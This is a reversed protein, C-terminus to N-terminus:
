QQCLFSNSFKRSIKEHNKSEKLFSAIRKKKKQEAKSKKQKKQVWGIKKCLLFFRLPSTSSNKKCRENKQLAFFFPAFFHAFFFPAFFFSFPLHFFFTASQSSRGTHWKKQVREFILSKPTLFFISYETNEFNKKIIFYFFFKSFISFIKLTRLMFLRSFLMILFIFVKQEEFNRCKEKSNYM